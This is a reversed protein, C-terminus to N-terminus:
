AVRDRDLARAAVTLRGAYGVRYARFSRLLTGDQGSFLHVAAPRAAKGVILDAFGDRNLDGAAVSVGGTQGPFANFDYLVTNPDLGSFVKVRAPGRAAGAIIDPVGDHNVDGVAVRVGGRYPAAFAPFRYLESSTAADDVTVLPRRGAGVALLPLTQTEFAGIDVARLRG